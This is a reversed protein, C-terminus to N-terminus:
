DESKIHFIKGCALILVIGLVFLTIVAAAIRIIFIMTDNKEYWVEDFCYFVEVSSADYKECIKELSKYKVASSKKYGVPLTVSEGKKIAKVYSDPLQALIYTGDPCELLYYPIYVGEYDWGAEMVKDRLKKGGRRSSKYPDAWPKLGVLGTEVIGTPEITVYDTSYLGEFEEQGSIRPIDDGAAHGVFEEPLKDDIDQLTITDKSTSMWNEPHLNQFVFYAAVLGIIVCIVNIVTEKNFRM